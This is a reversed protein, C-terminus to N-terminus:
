WVTHMECDPVPPIQRNGTLPTDTLLDTVIEPIRWAYTPAVIIWPKESYIPSHDKTKLRPTLSVVVDDVAKAIMRAAYESNGTASFYLIMAWDDQYRVERNVQRVWWGYPVRLRHWAFM